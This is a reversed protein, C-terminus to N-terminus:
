IKVKLKKVLDTYGGLYKGNLYIQPISTKGTLMNIDESGINNKEIDVNVFKIKKKSLLMKAKQCYPCWAHRDRYFILEADKEQCNFLRLDSYSNTIGNVRDIDISQIKKLDEWSLLSAM